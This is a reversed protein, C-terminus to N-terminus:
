ANKPGLIKIGKGHFSAHKAETAITFYHDFLKLLKERHKIFCKLIKLPSEHEESKYM